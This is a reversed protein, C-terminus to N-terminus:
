FSASNRRPRVVVWVLLQRVGWAQPGPAFISAPRQGLTIWVRTAENQAIFDSAVDKAPMRADAGHEGQEAVDLHVLSM